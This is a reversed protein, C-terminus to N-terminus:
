PHSPSFTKGSHRDRPDSEWGTSFDAKQSPFLTQGGPARYGHRTAGGLKRPHRFALYGAFSPYLKILGMIEQKRNQDANAAVKVRM